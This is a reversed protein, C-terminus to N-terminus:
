PRRNPNPWVGKNAAAQFLVQDTLGLVGYHHRAYGILGRGWADSNAVRLTEQCYDDVCVAAWQSPTLGVHLLLNLGRGLEKTVAFIAFVDLLRYEVQHRVVFAGTSRRTLQHWRDQAAPSLGQEYSQLAPSVRGGGHIQCNRMLRYLHFLELEVFSRPALSVGVLRQLADHMTASPAGGSAAAPPAGLISSVEDICGNVFDEHIALAYPVTVTALHPGASGLVEAAAHPRLNFYAIHSVAPFIEPLLRESGETLQLTHAALQSGALLAVMANNARQQSEQYQRYLLFHVTHLM